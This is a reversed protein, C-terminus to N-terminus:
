ECDERTTYDESLEKGDDIAFQEWYKEWTFASFPTYEELPYDFRFTYTRTKIAQYAEPVAVYLEIPYNSATYLRCNEVATRNKYKIDTAMPQGAALLKWQEFQNETLKCEDMFCANSHVLSCFNFSSGPTLGTLREFNYHMQVLSEMIMTKGTSPQGIFFLNNKKKTQGYFHRKTLTAFRRDEIGNMSLITRLKHIQWDIIEPNEINPNDKLQLQKCREIRQESTEQFVLIRSISVATKIREGFKKTFQIAIGEPTACLVRQASAEDFARQECLQLVLKNNNECNYRYRGAGNTRSKRSVGQQIDTQSQIQALEMRERGGDGPVNEDAEFHDEVMGTDDQDSTTSQETPIPSRGEPDNHQTQPQRPRQTFNIGLSHAACRFARKDSETLIDRLTQRDDSPSLYKLLCTLCTIKKTKYTDNRITQGFRTHHGWKENTSIYIIHYHLKKTGTHKSIVKWPSRNTPCFRYKRKEAITCNISNEDWESDDSRETENEEQEEDRGTTDAEKATDSNDGAGTRAGAGAGAGTGGGRPRDGSPENSNGSRRRKRSVGTGAASHESRDDTISGNHLYDELFQNNSIIHIGYLRTINM